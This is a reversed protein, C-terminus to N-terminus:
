DLLLDLVIPLYKRVQERDSEKEKDTLEGYPTVIQHQWRAVLDPSILLSGDPQLHGQDHVYKQWHAWREHEVAALRDISEPHTLRNEIQGKSTM